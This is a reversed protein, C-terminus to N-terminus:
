NKILKKAEERAEKLFTNGTNKLLTVGFINKKIEVKEKITNNQHTKIQNEKKLLTNEVELSQLNQKM